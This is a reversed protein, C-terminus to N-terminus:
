IRSIELYTGVLIRINDNCSSNNLDSALCDRCIPVSNINYQKRFENANDGTQKNIVKIGFKGVAEKIPILFLLENGKNIYISKQFTHNASITIMCLM